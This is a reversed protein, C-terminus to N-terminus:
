EEPGLTVIPAVAEVSEPTKRQDANVSALFEAVFHHPTPGVFYKEAFPPVVKAMETVLTKGRAKEVDSIVQRAAAVIEPREHKLRAILAQGDSIVGRWQTLPDTSDITAVKM